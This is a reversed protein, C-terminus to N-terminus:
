DTELHKQIAKYVSREVIEIGGDYVEIYSEGTIHDKIKNVSYDSDGISVIFVNITNIKQSSIDPFAKEIENQRSDPMDNRSAGCVKCEQETKPHIYFRRCECDWFNPNTVIKDKNM